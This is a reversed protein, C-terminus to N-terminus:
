VHDDAVVDTTSIQAGKVYGTSSTVSPRRLFIKTKFFRNLVGKVEKTRVCYIIPDLIAGLTGTLLYDLILTCAPCFKKLQIHIGNQLATDYGKYIAADVHIVYYFIYSVFFSAVLCLATVLATYHKRFGRNRKKVKHVIILIYGYVLVMSVFVTSVVIVWYLSKEWAYTQNIFMDYYRKWCFGKEEYCSSEVSSFTFDKILFYVAPAASLMWSIAIVIWM